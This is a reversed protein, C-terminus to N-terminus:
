RPKREGNDFTNGNLQQMKKLRDVESQATEIDGAVSKLLSPAAEKGEIVKMRFDEKQPFYDVTPAPPGDPFMNFGGELPNNFNRLKEGFKKRVM